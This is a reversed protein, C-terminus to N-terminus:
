FSNHEPIQRNSSKARLMYCVFLGQIAIVQERASVPSHNSSAMSNQNLTDMM